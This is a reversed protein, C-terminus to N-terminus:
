SRHQNRRENDARLYILIYEYVMRKGEEFLVSHPDPHIKDKVTSGHANCIIGLHKLVEKGAESRFVSSFQSALKEQYKKYEENDAKIKAADEPNMDMM